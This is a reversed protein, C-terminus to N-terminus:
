AHVAPEEVGEGAEVLQVGHAIPKAAGEAPELVHLAHRAPEKEDLKAELLQEVQTFPVVLSAPEDLQLM